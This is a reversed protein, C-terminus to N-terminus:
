FDTTRYDRPGTTRHSDGLDNGAELLAVAPRAFRHATQSLRKGPQTMVDVQEGSLRVAVALGSLVISEAHELKTPVTRLKEARRGAEAFMHEPVAVITNM